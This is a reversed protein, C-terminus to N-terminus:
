EKKESKVDTLLSDLIVLASRMRWEPITKVFFRYSFEDLITGGIGSIKRGKNEPKDLFNRVTNLIKYGVALRFGKNIDTGGVWDNVLNSLEGDFFNDGVADCPNLILNPIIYELQEEAQTKVKWRHDLWHAAKFIGLVVGKVMFGDGLLGLSNVNLDEFPKAVRLLWKAGSRHPDAATVAEVISAITKMKEIDPASVSILLNFLEETPFDSANALIEMLHISFPSVKEGFLVYSVCKLSHSDFWQNKM